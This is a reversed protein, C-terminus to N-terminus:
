HNRGKDHWVRMMLNWSCGCVGGDPGYLNAKMDNIWILKSFDTQLYLQTWALHKEQNKKSQLCNQRCRGHKEMAKSNAVFQLFHVRNSDWLKSYRHVPVEHISKLLM